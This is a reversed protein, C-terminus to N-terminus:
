NYAKQSLKISFTVLQFLKQVNEGKHVKNLNYKWICNSLPIQLIPVNKGNKVSTNHGTIGVFRQVFKYQKKAKWLNLALNSTVGLSIIEFRKM